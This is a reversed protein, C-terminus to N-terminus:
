GTKIYVINDSDTQLSEVYDGTSISLLEAEGAASISHARYGWAVLLADAERHPTNGRGSHAFEMIVVPSHESLCQEFGKIVSLEGGEVDLKIVDPYINHASIWDDGSVTDVEFERFRVRKFWTEESYMEKNLTNYESYLVPFELMSTAGSHDSFAANVPIIGPYGGVNLSLWEFTTPSPEAAVVKGKEGVFLYGLLSYYGMHAGIDFFHQGPQLNSIMWAALRLESDHCKGGTLYIDLGAPLDLQMQAGWFTKCSVPTGNGSLPFRIYRAFM